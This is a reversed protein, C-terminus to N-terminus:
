FWFLKFKINGAVMRNAAIDAQNATSTGQPTTGFFSNTGNAAWDPHEIYDGNGNETYAKILDPARGQNHIISYLVQSTGSIDPHVFIASEIVKPQLKM